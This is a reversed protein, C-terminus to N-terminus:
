SDVEMGSALGSAEQATDWNINFKTVRPKDALINRYLRRHLYPPVSAYTSTSGASMCPLKVSRCVVHGRPPKASM